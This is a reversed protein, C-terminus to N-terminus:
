KGTILILDNKMKLEKHLDKLRNKIEKFGEFPSELESDINRKESQVLAEETLQLAKNIRNQMKLSAAIWYKCEVIYGVTTM